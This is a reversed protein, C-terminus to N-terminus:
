YMFGLSTLGNQVEPSSMFLDWLLATRYNEIMAIIPGQDIALYSDAYWGETINFADKFGYEGWLRDGLTYYFFKLAEMSYEPTYPFSSLAATPSIVGLDNLPSHASYGSQNDSATLGWNHASYGVFNKPNEIVYQRNILTHNVHQVWYDAYTDSLNTPNLGLFSYHAFFLPGGYDQGLPLPINYFLKGNKIAGNQAYGEHYVVPDIPHTPSAAALVYTILTENSGRIQHNMAWDVTPSWHWYLVHQGGRTYWDWEVTEWLSNINAILASEIPDTSTLFQRVTLLGQILFSTEVLDGGNDNESFPIVNGTSGNMWHPWAGHFRDATSLFNVIKTLREIGETRTIFNREIGTIIAMLGFGTGGSTVLDGSSNRERAMGSVPHGFDWFYKFTQSQILTLLEEDSIVPFKPEPDEATYFSRATLQIEEQSTGKVEDTVILDYRTLDKLLVGTLSINVRTNNETLEFSLPVSGSSGSIRITENSVTSPDLPVSFIIEFSANLPINDIINANLADTGNILMGTINLTAPATIFHVTVGAFTEKNKGTLGSSIVLSYDVLPSLPDASVASFTKDDNLYAFSLPVNEGSSTIILRVSSEVSIRELPSSFTAVIPKDTPAEDTTGGSLQLTVTGVKVDTLQLANPQEVPKEDDCGPFFLLLLFLLFVIFSATKGM